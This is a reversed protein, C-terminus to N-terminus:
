VDAKPNTTTIRLDYYINEWEFRLGEKTFSFTMRETYDSKKPTVTLQLIDREANYNYAGWQDWEENLIITWTSDTTITFVGYKGAKLEHGNIYIDETTTLVTAKNAGTRWVENYPVLEGWIKRKKVGPSSYEISIKANDIVTSDSAPPSPRSKEDESTCSLTCAALLIFSFLLYHPRIRFLLTNKNPCM